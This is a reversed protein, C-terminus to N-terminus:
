DMSIRQANEYSVCRNPFPKSLPDFRFRTCIAITNTHVTSFADFHFRHIFIDCTRTDTAHAYLEVEKVVYLKITKSCKLTSLRFRM